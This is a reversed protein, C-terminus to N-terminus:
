FEARGSHVEDFSDSSAFIQTDDACLGPTTSKLCEPLDNIYLLVFLAPCIAM